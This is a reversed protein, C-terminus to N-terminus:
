SVTCRVTWTGGARRGGEVSCAAEWTKPDDELDKQLPGQSCNPM